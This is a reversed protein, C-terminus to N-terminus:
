VRGPRYYCTELLTQLRLSLSISSYNFIVKKPDCPSLDNSIGLDSLKRQHIKLTKDKFKSTEVKIFNKALIFDLPSCVNRLKDLTNEQLVLEKSLYKNKLNIENELLELQWKKYLRSTLLSKKYLKFRLFKPTLGFIKCKVLFEKDLSLKCLRTSSNLANRYCRLGQTGYSKNFYDFGNPSIKLKLKLIYLLALLTSVM